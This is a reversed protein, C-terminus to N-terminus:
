ADDPVGDEEAAATRTAFFAEVQAVFGDHAETHGEEETGLHLETLTTNAHMAPLLTGQWFAPTLAQNDSVDLLQLHTNCALANFVPGLVEEGLDCLTARMMTLAPANAAVLAGLFMAAACRCTNATALNFSVHLLRVSSHGALAGLLQAVVGPKDWLDLAVLSLSTVHSVRLASGLLAAAPEGALPLAGDSFDLSRLADCSLLRQLAPASAPTIPELFCGQFKVSTLRRRVAADVVADLVAPTRLAVNELRLEALGDHAALDPAVLENEDQVELTLRHMRLPAFPAEKRLMARAHALNEVSVDAHLVRLSPAAHLLAEANEFSLPSMFSAHMRLATLSAGNAAVVDRLREFRLPMRGSVDLERLEGGARAVAAALLAASISRLTHCSSGSLDLCHWLARERCAARWARCVEACRLRDTVPLRLLIHALLASPLQAITMRPVTADSM